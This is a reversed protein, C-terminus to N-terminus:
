LFHKQIYSYRYIRSGLSCLILCGKTQIVEAVEADKLQHYFDAPNVHAKIYIHNQAYGLCSVALAM